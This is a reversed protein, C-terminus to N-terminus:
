NGKGALFRVAIVANRDKEENCFLYFHDNERHFRSKSYTELEEESIPIDMAEALGQILVEDADLRYM